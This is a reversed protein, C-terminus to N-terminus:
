RRRASLVAAPLSRLLIKLDLWLSWTDIYELDIRMWDDFEAQKRGSVQWLGTLGPRVSLRRRHWPEYREVEEVTPPRPGVLSMDGVLVNFLQPLEDINTRRLFDALRSVRPDPLMKFVASGSPPTAPAADLAVTRFKYMTFRRGNRGAREHGVIAPGDSDFRVLAIVILLLPAFVILGLLGFAIDVVRKVALRSEDKAVRRLGLMPYDFGSVSAVEVTGSSPYHEPLSLLVDIGRDDCAAIADRFIEPQRGAVAFVVEDVPQRDLLGALSGVFGLQPRARPDASEGPLQVFGVITLASPSHARMSEAFAVSTPGSGVIVVRHGDRGKHARAKGAEVLAIRGLMLTLFQAVGFMVVFTRAVFQVRFVFAALIFLLLGILAAKAYRLAVIRYPSRTEAAGAYHLSAAWIPLMGVILWRYQSPDIGLPVGGLSDLFRAFGPHEGRTRALWDRAFLTAFFALTSIAVDYVIVLRRVFASRKRWM